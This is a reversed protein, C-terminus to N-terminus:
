SAHPAAPFLHAPAQSNAPTAQRRWSLAINPDSHRVENAAISRFHCSGVLFYPVGRCTLEFVDGGVHRCAADLRRERQTLFNFRYLSDNGSPTAEDTPIASREMKTRPQQSNCECSCAYSLTPANSGCGLM